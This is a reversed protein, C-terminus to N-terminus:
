LKYRAGFGIISLKDPNNKNIENERRFFLKTKIDKSISWSIGLTFRQQDLHTNQDIKWYFEQAIYPNIFNTKMETGWKSRFYTKDYAGLEDWSQQIRIRQKLIISLKKIEVASNLDIHARFYNDNNAKNVLRINASLSHEKFIKYNIGLNTYNKKYVSISDAWRIQEELEFRLKANIKKSFKVSSWLELDENQAVSILPFIALFFFLLRNNM